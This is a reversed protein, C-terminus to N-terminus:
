YPKGKNALKNENQPDGTLWFKHCDSIVESCCVTSNIKREEKSTLEQNGYFLCMCMQHNSFCSALNQDPRARILTSGM